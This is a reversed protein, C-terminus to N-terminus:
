KETQKESMIKLEALKKMTHEIASSNERRDEQIPIVKAAVYPFLKILADIRKEPELTKIDEDLGTMNDMVIKKIQERVTATTSNPTGKVRGGTKMRGM